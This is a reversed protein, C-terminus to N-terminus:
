MVPKNSRMHTRHNVYWKHWELRKQAQRIEEHNAVRGFIFICIDEHLQKSAVCNSVVRVGLNGLAESLAEISVDPNLRKAEAIFHKNRGDAWLGRVLFNGEGQLYTIKEMPGRKRWSELGKRVDGGPFFLEYGLLTLGDTDSLMKKSDLRELIHAIEAGSFDAHMSAFAPKSSMFWVLGAFEVLIAIIIMKPKM